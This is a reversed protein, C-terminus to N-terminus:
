TKFFAKVGRKQEEYYGYGYRTESSPYLANLLVAINTFKNVTVLRDLNHLFEKKSYNARFIYITLDAKKMAMIGDTVVGVPPTDLIIYDYNKKLEELLNEFEPNLLLESPNPPMPGSPIFDLGEVPGAHVCESWSHKKILITSIGKYEDHAGNGKRKRMDLDLLVIKKGGISTVGGLNLAIFSKGEGSITSTITIIKSKKEPQFFDLNTRLTRFSESIMSRPQEVVYIENERIKGSAPVVGLVPLTVARELEQISTIKNNALYLIGIFFFNLVLSMVFGIGYIMYKNPSISRTPYTAPSLIKFDPTSGAQTIEFGSKAQMLSTLLEENIKYYRQNKAFQTSKDPIGRFNSELAKEQSELKDLEMALIARVSSIESVIKEKINEVVRIQSQIAYTNEKYSLRLRDLYQKEEHYKDLSINLYDPLYSRRNVSHTTNNQLDRLLSDIGELRQQANIRMTDIRTLLSVTLKLDEELNNTRNQLTFEEFYQEYNEMLNELRQLESNLWDIKQTNAQNKMEHSFGLYASDIKNVMDQAKLKNYDRFSVRITNANLDLLEVSLNSSLYNLIADRSLITFVYNINPEFGLLTREIVLENEGIILPTGYQGQIEQDTSSIRILYTRDSKHFLDVPVNYLENNKFKYRVRFPSNKYLETDLFEGHSIYVVDIEMSDIVRNLFLNSKITEIEGSLINMSQDEVVGPLGLETGTNKIELKLESISEFLDQTYRNIIYTVLNVSIFILAIWLLNSRIIVKLKNFDIGETAAGKNM